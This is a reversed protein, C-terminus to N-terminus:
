YGFVLQRKEIPYVVINIPKQSPGFTFDFPILDYEGTYPDADHHFMLVNYDQPFLDELEKRSRVGAEGGGSNLEMMVVPRYRELTEHLGQLAYKEFGEIDVKILDARKLGSKALVIDGKAIPLEETSVMENGKRANPLFSGTM